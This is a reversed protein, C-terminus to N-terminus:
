RPGGAVGDILVLVQELRAFDALPEVEVTELADQPTSSVRTVKGALLGPPLLGGLTSSLVVDGVAIPAGHPVLDLRLGSGTGVLSGPTRSAQVIAAIASARDTLLRVRASREDAQAVVGVLTAGAGLVPQGARVGEAAGRDLLLVERGPAPDRAVVAAPLARRPEGGAARAGAAALLAATQARAAGDERLAALEAADRETQQRLAANEAALEDLHGAHLLVDTVPRVLARLAAAAPAAIAGVGEEVRGAPPLASAALLVLAAVLVGSLWAANRMGVM